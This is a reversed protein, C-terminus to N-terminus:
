AAIERWRQLRRERRAASLRVVGRATAALVIRDAGLEVTKELLWDIKEQASLAQVITVRLRAERDLPGGRTISARCRATTHPDPVLRAEFESGKGDFLILTDQARLRLVRLAHHCCAAPLEITQGVELGESVFFRPARM